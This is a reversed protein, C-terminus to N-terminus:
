AVGWTTMEVDTQCQDFREFREFSSYPALISPWFFWLDVMKRKVKPNDTFGGAVRPKLTSAENGPREQEPDM